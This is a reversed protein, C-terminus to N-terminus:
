TSRTGPIIQLRYEPLVHMRRGRDHRIAERGVVIELSLEVRVISYIVADSLVGASLWPFRYNMRIRNLAHERQELPSDDSRVM